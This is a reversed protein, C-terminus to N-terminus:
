VPISTCWPFVCIRFLAFTVGVPLSLNVAAALTASGVAVTLPDLDEASRQTVGIEHSRLQCCERRFVFLQDVFNQVDLIHLACPNQQQIASGTACIASQPHNM